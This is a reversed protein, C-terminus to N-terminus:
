VLATCILCFAQEGEIKGSLLSLGVDVQTGDKRLGRSGIHFGAGVPHGKVMMCNGGSKGEGQDLPFLMELKQRVLEDASYGFMKEITQDAYLIRGRRSVFLVGDSSFTSFVEGVSRVKLRLIEWENREIQESLRQLDALAKDLAKDLVSEAEGIPFM